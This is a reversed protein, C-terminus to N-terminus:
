KTLNEKAIEDYTPLQKKHWKNLIKGDEWLVIGPNSRVITKLLIDDATYLDIDLEAEGALDNLMTEDAGGAVLSVKYGESKASTILPRIIDKYDSLYDEEWVYDYQTEERSKIEKVSNVIEFEDSGEVQITDTSYITDQVLVKKAIADGYLKHAVIMFHAKEGELYAYSVDNGQLDTVEFDSIKSKEIAPETKIQEVVEYKDKSYTSTLGAYYQDTPIEIIAGSEKNKLKWAYVQVNAMADEEMQKIGAVDAGKKFPRFDAHPIDWQYNSICYVFLAITSVGLILNRTKSTFIETMDRHKLVFYLAPFLLVVDKFFSTKPKLKIFDGFCGCDTVRMNSEKFAGWSGFSFFNTGSPVYGTLYTFGTLITFFVVLLFFAWSTLKPKYGMLLALALILEFLIMFVSFGVSMGSLFPFLPALFDFATDAFTLEFEAFYQEMKYATGLPDVAKVWGSFLFLGGCFYQLFMMLWNKSGKKVLGGIGGTLILAAVATWIFITTLTM